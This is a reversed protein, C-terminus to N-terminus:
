IVGTRTNHYDTYLEPLFSALHNMEMGCHVLLDRGMSLPVARRRLFRTATIRNLIEKGPLRRFAINGLWFRSRPYSSYTPQESCAAKWCDSESGSIIVYRDREVSLDHVCLLGILDKESM